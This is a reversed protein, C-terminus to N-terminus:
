AEKAAAALPQLDAVVGTSTESHTLFVVDAGGLETLRAALDDARPAEGWEYRMPEVAAGHMAAIQEWRQGFNGASVVLARTGGACLNVGVSEMAATGSGTFLLVDSETRCVERLRALCREYVPRFDTGRHHLVPEALAALVQPPVPTPGPTFLYRRGAMAALSAGGISASTAKAAASSASRRAPPSARRRRAVWRGSSPAHAQDSAAYATAAAAM